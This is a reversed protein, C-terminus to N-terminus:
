NTLQYNEKVSYWSKPDNLVSNLWKSLNWVIGNLIITYKKQKCESLDWFMEFEFLETYCLYLELTLFLEIELM